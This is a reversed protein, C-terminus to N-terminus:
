VPRHNNKASEKKKKFECERTELKMKSLVRMSDSDVFGETLM